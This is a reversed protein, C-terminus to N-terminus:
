QLRAHFWRCLLLTIASRVGTFQSYFHDLLMMQIFSSIFIKTQNSKFCFSHFYLSIAVRSLSPYRLKPNRLPQNIYLHRRLLRLWFIDVYGKNWLLCSNDNFMKMQRCFCFDDIVPNVCAIYLRVQPGKKILLSLRFWCRRQNFWRQFLSIYWYNWGVSFFHIHNSIWALIAISRQWPFPDSSPYLIWKCM